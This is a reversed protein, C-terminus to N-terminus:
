TVKVVFRKALRGLLAQISPARGPLSHRVRPSNLLADFSCLVNEFRHLRDTRTIYAHVVLIIVLHLNPLSPLVENTSM